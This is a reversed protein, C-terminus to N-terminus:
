KERDETFIRKGRGPVKHGKKDETFTHRGEGGGNDQPMEKDETCTLYANQRRPAIEARWMHM